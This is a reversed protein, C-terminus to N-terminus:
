ALYRSGREFTGVIYPPLMSFPINVETVEELLPAQARKFHQNAKQGESLLVSNVKASVLLFM